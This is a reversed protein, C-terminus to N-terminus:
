NPARFAVALLQWLLPGLVSLVLAAVAFRSVRRGDRAAGIVMVLSVLFTWALLFIGFPVRHMRRLRHLVDRM